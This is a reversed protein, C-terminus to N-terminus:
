RGARGAPDGLRRDPVLLSRIQRVSWPGTWSRAPRRRVRPAVGGPTALEVRDLPEGSLAAFRDALGVGRHLVHGPVLVDHGGVLAAVHAEPMRAQVRQPGGAVVLAQRVRAGALGLPAPQEVARPLRRPHDVGLLAEQEVPVVHRGLAPGRAVGLRALPQGAAVVAARVQLQGGPARRGAGVRRELPHLARHVRAPWSRGAAAAPRRAAAAGGGAARHSRGREAAIM